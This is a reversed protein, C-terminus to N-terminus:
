VGSKWALKTPQIMQNMPAEYKPRGSPGAPELKRPCHPGQLHLLLRLQGPKSFLREVLLLALNIMLKQKQCCYPRECWNASKQQMITVFGGKPAKNIRGQVCGPALPKGAKKDVERVDKNQASEVSHLKMREGIQRPACNACSWM